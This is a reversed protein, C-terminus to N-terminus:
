DKVSPGGQTSDGRASVVMTLALAPYPRPDHAYDELGRVNLSCKTADEVFRRAFRLSGEALADVIGERKAIKDILTFIAKRNGWEVALGDTDKKTIIGQEYMKM